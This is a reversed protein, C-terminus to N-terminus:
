NLVPATNGDGKEHGRRTQPHVTINSLDALANHRIAM